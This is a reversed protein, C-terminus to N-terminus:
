ASMGQASVGGGGISHSVTLLRATRMRSFHMSTKKYNLSFSAVGLLESKSRSKARTRTGGRNPFILPNAAMNAALLIVSSDSFDM